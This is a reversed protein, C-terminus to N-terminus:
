WPSLTEETWLPHHRWFDSGPNFPRFISSIMGKRQWFHPFRTRQLIDERKM